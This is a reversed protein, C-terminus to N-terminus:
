GSKVWAMNPPQLTAVESRRAMFRALALRSAAQVGALPNGQSDTRIHPAVFGIAAFAEPDVLYAMAGLVIVDEAEPPFEADLPESWDTLRTWNSEYGVYATGSGPNMSSLRVGRGTSSLGTPLSPEFAYSVARTSNISTDPVRSVAFVGTADAPVELVRGTSFAQSTDWRRRKMVTGIAKLAENIATRYQSISYRPNARVVASTAHAVATTGDAGRLLVGATASSKSVVLATEFTQDYWDIRANVDIQTGSGFTVGTGTATLVATTDRAPHDRAAVRVREILEGLTPTGEPTATVASVIFSGESVVSINGSGEYRYTWLGATAPVIDKYFAGVAAADNVADLYVTATGAPNTVTLTVTTPDIPAGDLDTFSVRLRVSEGVLHTSM